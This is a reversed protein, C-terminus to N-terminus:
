PQTRGERQQRSTALRMRWLRACAGTGRRTRGDARLEPQSSDVHLGNRLGRLRQGQQQPVAVLQVGLEVLEADRHQADDRVADPHAEAQQPLPEREGEDGAVALDGPEVRQLVEGSPRLGPGDARLLRHGSHAAGQGQRDGVAGVDDRAQVEVGRGHVGEVAPRGLEGPGHAPQLGPDDAFASRDNLV